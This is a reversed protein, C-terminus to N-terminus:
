SYSEHPPEEATYDTMKEEKASPDVEKTESVQSIAQTDNGRESFVDPSPLENAFSDIPHDPHATDTEWFIKWTTTTVVTVVREIIRHMVSRIQHEFHLWLAIVM